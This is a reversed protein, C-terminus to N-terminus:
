KLVILDKNKSVTKPGIGKVRTLDDISKFPGNAEREKIIAEAKSMGIGKLTKAIEPAKASNINVTEANVFGPVLLIILMIMCKVINKM